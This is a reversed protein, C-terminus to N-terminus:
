SSAPIRDVAPWPLPTVERKGRSQRWYTVQGLNVFVPSGTRHHTLAAPAGGSREFAAAVQGEDERVMIQDRGVFHIITPMPHFM